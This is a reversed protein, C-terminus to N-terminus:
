RSASVIASWAANQQQQMEKMRRLAENKQADTSQHTSQDDNRETQHTKVAHDNLAQNAQDGSQAASAVTSFGNTALSLIKIISEIGTPSIGGGIAVFTIFLAGTVGISGGISQALKATWNRHSGVLDEHSDDAQHARERQKVRHVAAVSGHFFVNIAEIYMMIKNSDAESGKAFEADILTQYREIHVDNNPLKIDSM